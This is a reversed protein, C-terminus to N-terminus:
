GRLRGPFETLQKSFQWPDESEPLVARSADAIESDQTTGRAFGHFSDFDM